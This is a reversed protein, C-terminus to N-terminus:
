GKVSARTVSTVTSYTVHCMGDTPDALYDYLPIWKEGNTAPVTYVVPDNAAGGKQTGPVAVTVTMSSGATNRVIAKHGSGVEFLDGAVAAAFSPATGDLKVSQTAVATM